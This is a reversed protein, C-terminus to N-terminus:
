FLKLARGLFTVFTVLIVSGVGTVLMWLKASEMSTKLTGFGNEMDARLGGVGKEMDARLGGVGKEMDARLGGVSKEMDARLGGVSKEMDARLSGFGKEVESRLSGFGKEMDTRLSGFEKANAIISEDVRAGLAKVDGKLECVDSELRAIRDEAAMSSELAMVANVNV